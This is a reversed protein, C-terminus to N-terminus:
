IGFVKLVADVAGELGRGTVGTRRGGAPMEEYVYRGPGGAFEDNFLDEKGRLNSIFSQQYLVQGKIQVTDWAGVSVFRGVDAEGQVTRPRHARNGLAHQYLVQGKIQV